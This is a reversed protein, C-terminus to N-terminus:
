HGADGEGEEAMPAGEEGAPKEKIMEVALRVGETVARTSITAGTIAQIKDETEGKIVV